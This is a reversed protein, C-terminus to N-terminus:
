TLNELTAYGQLVASQEKRDKNGSIIMNELVQALDKCGQIEKTQRGQVNETLLHVVYELRYKAEALSKQRTTQHVGRRLCKTIVSHAYEMAHHYDNVTTCRTPPYSLAPSMSNVALTTYIDGGREEHEAIFALTYKSKHGQTTHSYNDPTLWLEYRQTKINRVCVAVPTSYSYGIAFEDFDDAICGPLYVSMNGNQNPCPKATALAKAVIANTPM